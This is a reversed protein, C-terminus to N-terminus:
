QNRSAQWRKMVEAHHLDHPPLVHLMWGFAHERSWVEAPEEPISEIAEMLNERTRHLLRVAEDWEVSRLPELAEENIRSMPEDEVGEWSARVGRLAAEMERLRAHDRTVLHLVTERPTWNGEGM